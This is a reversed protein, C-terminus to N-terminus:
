SQSGTLLLANHLATKKINSVVGDVHQAVTGSLGDKDSVARTRRTHDLWGTIANFAGWLTGYRSALRQGNGHTLQANVQDLIRNFKNLQDETLHETNGLMTDVGTSKAQVLTSSHKLLVTKIYRQTENSNMMRQALRNADALLVGGDFHKIAEVAREVDLSASHSFDLSDRKGNFHSRYANMCAPLTAEAFIRSKGFVNITFGIYPKITDERDAWSGDANRDGGNILMEDVPLKALAFLKEGNGVKGARDWILNPISRQVQQFFEIVDSPQHGKVTYRSGLQKPLEVQKNPDKLDVAFLARNHESHQGDQTWLDKIQYEFDFGAFVLASSLPVNRDIVSVESYWPDATANANLVAQTLDNNHQQMVNTGIVTLNLRVFAGVTM